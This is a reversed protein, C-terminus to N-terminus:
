AAGAGFVGSNRIMNSYFRFFDIYIEGRKKGIKVKCEIIVILLM